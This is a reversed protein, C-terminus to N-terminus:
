VEEVFWQWYREIWWLQSLSESGFNKCLWQRDAKSFRTGHQKSLRYLRAYKHATNKSLNLKMLATVMQGRTPQRGLEDSLTNLNKIALAEESRRGRRRNLNHTERYVKKAQKLFVVLSSADPVSLHRVTGPPFLIKMVESVGVGLAVGKTVTPDDEPSPKILSRGLDEVKALTEVWERDLQASDQKTASLNKEGVYKM